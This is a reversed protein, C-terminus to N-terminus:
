FDFRVAAQMQRAGLLNGTTTTPLQFASTGNLGNQPVM